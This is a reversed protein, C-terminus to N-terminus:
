QVSDIYLVTAYYVQNIIIISHWNRGKQEEDIWMSFLRNLKYNIFDWNKHTVITIPTQSQILRILRITCHHTLLMFYYYISTYIYIISYALGKLAKEIYVLINEINASQLLFPWSMRNMSNLFYIFRGDKKNVFSNCYFMLFNCCRVTGTASNM